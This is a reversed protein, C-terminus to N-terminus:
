SQAERGKIAGYVAFPGQRWFVEPRQFGAQALAGLQDYIQQYTDEKSWEDLHKRGEEESIGHMAM